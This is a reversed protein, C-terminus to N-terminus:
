GTQKRIAYCLTIKLFFLQSGLDVSIITSHCNQCKSSTLTSIIMKQKKSFM